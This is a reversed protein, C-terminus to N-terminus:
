AAQELPPTAIWLLLVTKRHYIIWPTLSLM